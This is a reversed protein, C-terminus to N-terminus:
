DNPLLWKAVMVTVALSIITSVVIALFLAFAYDTFVALYALVSIVAPILFLGMHKLLLQVTNAMFRPTAGCLMLYIYFIVIGLLAAPVPLEFLLKLYRAFWVISFLFALSLVGQLITKINSLPKSFSTKYSPM